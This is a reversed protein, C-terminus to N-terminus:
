VQRLSYLSRLPTEIPTRLKRRNLELRITRTDGIRCDHTGKDPDGKRPFGCLFCAPYAESPVLNFDLPAVGRWITGRNTMIPDVTTLLRNDFNIASCWQLLYQDDRDM